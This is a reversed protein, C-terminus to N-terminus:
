AHYVTNELRKIRRGHDKLDKNTDTVARRIVKVDTHLDNFENRTVMNKLRDKIFGTAEMVLDFRHNTEEMYAGVAKDAAREAAMDIVRDLEEETYKAMVGTYSPQSPIEM